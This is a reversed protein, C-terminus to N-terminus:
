AGGEALERYVTMMKEAAGRWSFLSARKKGESINKGAFDPGALIESVAGAMGEHDDPDFIFGAAGLIEPLSGRNSAIVPTGMAMAEVAPFGFGEDLSPMVLAAAAKYLSPLEEDSVKGLHVVDSSLNLEKMLNIQEGTFPTGAKVLKVGQKKSKLIKLVHFLAPINKYSGSHGVHLMFKEPGIKGSIDAHSPKDFSPHLGPYIVSVREQPYDLVKLLNRKGYESDCIIRAAKKLGTLNFRQVFNLTGPEGAFKGSKTKLWIADHFTVATKRADLFHALHAYSHDTIHFVDAKRAAAQAPYCAYQSFYRLPAKLFLPAPLLSEFKEGPNLDRLNKLLHEAYLTMSLRYDDPFAKLLVTKM